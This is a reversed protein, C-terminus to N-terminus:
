DLGIFDCADQHNSLGWIAARGMALISNDTSGGIHPTAILNNHQFLKHKLTPEIEFVDLAAGSLKKAILARDLAEEDILGGRATNIIISNDKMAEFETQGIMHWTSTNLPVHLSIIDSERILRDMGVHEAGYRNYFDLDPNIEHVLIRPKFPKLLCILDKGVHGCGIIGVTMQSLERGTIQNWNGTRLEFSSVTINRLIGLMMGIALEAVSRKNVGKKWGFRVGHHHLAEFDINNVGVGYKGIVRLEPVNKLVEADMKELAIIAGDFGQLFDVLSAGRLSLGNENFKVNSFQSVLEERLVKNKSFSKSCVAINKLVM